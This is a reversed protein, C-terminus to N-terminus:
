SCPSSPRTETTHSGRRFRRRLAPPPHPLWCADAREPRCSVRVAIPRLRPRVESAVVFKVTNPGPLIRECCTPERREVASAAMPAPPAGRAVKLAHRRTDGTCELEAQEVQSELAAALGAAHHWTWAPASRRRASRHCTVAQSGNRGRHRRQCTLHLPSRISPSNTGETERYLDSAVLSMMWMVTLLGSDCGDTSPCKGGSWHRVTTKILRHM